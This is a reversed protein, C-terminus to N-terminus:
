MLLCGPCAAAFIGTSSFTTSIEDEKIDSAPPTPPPSRKEIMTEREARQLASM